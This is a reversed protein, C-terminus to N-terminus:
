RFLITEALYLKNNAVFISIIGSIALLLEINNAM